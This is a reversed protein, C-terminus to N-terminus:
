KTLKIAKCNHLGLYSLMERFNELEFSNTGIVYEIDRLGMVKERSNLMKDMGHLFLRGTDAKFYNSFGVYYM